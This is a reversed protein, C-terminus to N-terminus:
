CFHWVRLAPRSKNLLEVWKGGQKSNEVSLGTMNGGPRALSKAFGSAVPDAVNVFVVPVTRTERALVGTVATTQSLIVDPRLDVLEKAFTRVRDPDAGGWRLEIRLNIGERWGLKALGDRFATVMSQATLNSEPYGMLVGILRMQEPQQAGVAIPWAAAGGGLFRIFDRRRM